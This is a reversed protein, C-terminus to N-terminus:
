AIKCDDFAADDHGVAAPFVPIQITEAGWWM